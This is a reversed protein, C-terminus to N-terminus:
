VLYPHAALYTQVRERDRFAYREGLDLGTHAAADADIVAARNARQAM